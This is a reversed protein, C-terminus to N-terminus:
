SVSGIKQINDSEYTKCDSASKLSVQLMAKAVTEAQIARYKRLSGVLLPNVVKSIVAGIEEGFRQEKRKGLLLSPRFINLSEIGLESLAEEVEGKVRNYFFMSSSNAGGATVINFQKSENKLAIKALELPYSFDVQRFKEKSGAKKITSGLCCFIVDAKLSDEYDMLNDYDVDIILIGEKKYSSGKRVVVAIDAYDKSNILLDVLHGGVLGTGGAVIATISM